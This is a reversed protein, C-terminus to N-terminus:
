VPVELRQHVFMRGTMSSSYLQKCVKSNSWRPCTVLGLNTYQHNSNKEIRHAEDFFSILNMRKQEAQSLGILNSFMIEVVEGLWKKYDM